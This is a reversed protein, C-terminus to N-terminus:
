NRAPLLAALEAEIRELDPILAERTAIRVRSLVFEARDDSRLPVARLVAPNLPVLQPHGECLVAYVGGPLRPSLAHLVALRARRHDAPPATAGNLLEFSLVPLDRGQWTLRGICPGAGGAPLPQLRDYAVVEALAANPLMLADDRLAILLAYLSQTAPAAAARAVGAPAIKDAM